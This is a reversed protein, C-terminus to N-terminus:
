WDGMRVDDVEGEFAITGPALVAAVIPVGWYSLRLSHKHVLEGSREFLECIRALVDPACVARLPVVNYLKRFGDFAEEFEERTFESGLPVERRVNM